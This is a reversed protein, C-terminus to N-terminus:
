LSAHSECLIRTRSQIRLCIGYLTYRRALLSASVQMTSDFQELVLHHVPSHVRQYNEFLRRDSRRISPRALYPTKDSADTVLRMGVQM